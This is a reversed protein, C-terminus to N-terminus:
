TMYYKNYRIENDKIANYQMINEDDDENICCGEKKCSIKRQSGNKWAIKRRKRYGAANEHLWVRRAEKRASDKLTVKSRGGRREVEMNWARRIPKDENYRLVDGIFVFWM